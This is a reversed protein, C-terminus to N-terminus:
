SLEGTDKVIKEGAIVIFDNWQASYEEPLLIWKKKERGFPNWRTAKKLALAKESNAEDFKVVLGEEFLIVFSKGQIVLSRFGFFNREGIEEGFFDGDKMNEFFRQAQSAPM